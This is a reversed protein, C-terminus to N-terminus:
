NRPDMIYQRQVALGTRQLEVVLAEEYCCELLGPGLVNHVEFCCQMVKYSLEPLLVNSNKVM